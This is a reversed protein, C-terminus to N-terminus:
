YVCSTKLAREYLLRTNLSEARSSALPTNQARTLHALSDPLNPTNLANGVESIKLTWHTMLLDDPPLQM